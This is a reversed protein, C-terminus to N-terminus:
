SLLSLYVNYDKAWLGPHVNQFLGAPAYAHVCMHACVPKQSEKYYLGELKEM